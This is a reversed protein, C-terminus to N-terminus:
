HIPMFQINSKFMICSWSVCCFYGIFVRLSTYHFLGLHDNWLWEHCSGFHYWVHVEVFNACILFKWADSGHHLDEFRMLPHHNLNQSMWDRGLWESHDLLSDTCVYLFCCIHRSDWSLHFSDLSIKRCMARNLWLFCLYKNTGTSKWILVTLTMFDISYIQSLPTNMPKTQKFRVTPFALLGSVTKQGPFIKIIPRLGHYCKGFLDQRWLFFFM